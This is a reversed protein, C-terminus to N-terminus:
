TRARARRSFQSTLCSRMDSRLGPAPSCIMHADSTRADRSMACVRDVALGVEILELEIVECAVPAALRDSDAVARCVMDLEVHADNRQMHRASQEPIALQHVREVQVLARRPILSAGLWPLTQWGTSTRGTSASGSARRSRHLSTQREFSVEYDDLDVILRVHGDPAHM